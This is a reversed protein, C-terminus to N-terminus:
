PEQLEYKGEKKTEKGIGHKRFNSWHEVAVGEDRQPSTESESNHQVSLADVMLVNRMEPVQSM